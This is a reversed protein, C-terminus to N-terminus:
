FIWEWGMQVGLAAIPVQYLPGVGDIAFTPRSTTFTLSPEVFLAAWGGLAWAARAAVGVMLWSVHGPEGTVEPGSGAATVDELTAILCPGVEFQGYAWAYCGSLEGARRQYRAVYPSINADNQPLQLVGALMLRVRGVRVGAGIGIGYAWSPLIGEDVALLPVQLAASWGRTARHAQDRDGDATPSTATSPRAVPAAPVNNSPPVAKSPPSSSGSSGSSSGSAGQDSRTDKGGVLAEDAGRTDGRALLAVTLAAAGALSECSGSEFARTEGAVENEKRVTLSLRYRANTAVVTGEVILRERPSGEATESGLLRRVRALVGDTGPCAAPAVWHLDIGAVPEAHARATWAVVASVAPALCFRRLIPGAGYPRSTTTV